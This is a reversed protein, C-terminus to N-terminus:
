CFPTPHPPYTCVIPPALFEKIRLPTCKEAHLNNINGQKIANQTSKELKKFYIKSNNVHM